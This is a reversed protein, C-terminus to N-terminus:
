RLTNQVQITLYIHSVMIGVWLAGLNLVVESHKAAACNAALNFRSCMASLLTFPLQWQYGKECASICAGYTVANAQLSELKHPGVSAQQSGRSRLLAQNRMM